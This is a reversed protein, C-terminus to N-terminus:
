DEKLQNEVSFSPHDNSFVFGTMDNEQKLNNGMAKLIFVLMECAQKKLREERKTSSAGLGKSM